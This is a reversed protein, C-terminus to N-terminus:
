TSTRRAVELRTVDTGVRVTGVESGADIGNEPDSREGTLGARNSIRRRRHVGIRGDKPIPERIRHM